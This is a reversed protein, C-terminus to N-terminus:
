AWRGWRAAQRVGDGSESGTVWTARGGRGSRRIATPRRQVDDLFSIPILNLDINFATCEALHRLMMRYVPRPPPLLDRQPTTSLYRRPILLSAAGCVLSLGFVLTLALAVVRVFSASTAACSSPRFAPRATAFHLWCCPLLFSPSSPSSPSPCTSLSDMPAAAMSSTSQFPRQIRMGFLPPLPLRLSTAQTTSTSATARSQLLSLSTYMNTSRSHTAVERAGLRRTKQLAPKSEHTEEEGGDREKEGNRPEGEGHASTHKTKNRTEQTRGHRVYGEWLGTKSDRGVTGEWEGQLRRARGCPVCACACM